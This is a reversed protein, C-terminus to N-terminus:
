RAERKGARGPPSGGGGDRRGRDQAHMHDWADWDVERADMVPGERCAWVFGRREGAAPIACGGCLGLGCGFVAEVSVHCDIGRALAWRALAALMPEPGCAFVAGPRERASEEHLLEGVPGKRGRTGDDTALSVPAPHFREPPLLQYATKAGYFIECRRGTRTLEDALFLIPAVGRGGAVLAAPEEFELPFPCGLPGLTDLSTGPELLVMRHTVRGVPAYLLSLRARDGAKAYGAVSFPRRLLSGEPGGTHGPSIALSVFQGPLPPGWAAPVALTMEWLDLSVARNELIGARFRQPEAGATPSGQAADCSPEPRIAGSSAAAPGSREGAAASM